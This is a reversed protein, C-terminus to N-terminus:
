LKFGDEMFGEVTEQGEKSFLFFLGIVFGVSTALRIIFWISPWVSPPAWMVFTVIALMGYFAVTLIGGVLLTALTLSILNAFAYALIKKM